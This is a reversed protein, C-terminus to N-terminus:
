SFFLVFDDIFSVFKLVWYGFNLYLWFVLERVFEIVSLYNVGDVIFFYIGNKGYESVNFYLVILLRNYNILGVYKNREFKM